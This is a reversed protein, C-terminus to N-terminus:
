LAESLQKMLAIEEASPEFTGNNRDFQNREFYFLDPIDNELVQLITMDPEAYKATELFLSAEDPITYGAIGANIIEKEPYKRDLLNPYCHHNALYPGFTYSDGLILVRQKQKPFTLDYNMRFGQANTLVRYLMTYNMSWIRDQNPKLDGLRDPRSRFTVQSRYDGQRDLYTSLEQVVIKNGFRSLHGNEPLLTIADAPYQLFAETCDLYDVQYKEALSRFFDRNHPASRRYDEFPIYLVCLKSQIKEAEQVLTAFTEEYERRFKELVTKGQETYLSQTLKIRIEKPALGRKEDAQLGLDQLEELTQEVRKEAQAKSWLTKLAVMNSQLSLVYKGHRQYFIVRSLVELCLLFGLALVLSFVLYKWSRMSGHM